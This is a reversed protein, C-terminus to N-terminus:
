EGIEGTEDEQRGEVVHDETADEAMIITEKPLNDDSMVVKTEEKVDIDDVGTTKFEPAKTPASPEMNESETPIVAGGHTAPEEVSVPEPDIGDETMKDVVKTEEGSKGEEVGSVESTIRQEFVTAIASVGWGAPIIPKVTPPRRQPGRARGKRMDGIKGGEVSKDVNEEAGGREETINTSAEPQISHAEEEKKQPPPPPPKGLKANLDKAFQARLGAFKSGGVLPKAPRPPPVPKVKLQQQQQEFQKALRHQPRAPLPPSKVGAVKAPISKTPVESQIDSASNSAVSAVSKVDPVPDTEISHRSSSSPGEVPEVIGGQSHVIDPPQDMAVKAEPKPQPKFKSPRPPIVPISSTLPTSPLGPEEPQFPTKKEQHALIPPIEDKPKEPRPSIAPIADDDKRKQPRAPISPLPQETTQQIPIDPPTSKEEKPSAPIAPHEHPSTSIEEVQPEAKDPRQTSEDADMPAPKQPRRPAVPPENVILEPEETLIESATPAAEVIRTSISPIKELQPEEEISYQGRVSKTSSKRTPRQPTPPMAEPISEEPTNKISSKRTPRPPIIPESAEGEIEPVSEAKEPISATSSKRSRRPSIIPDTSRPIEEPEREPVEPISSISSRSGKRTPRRPIAPGTPEVDDPGTASTESISKISSVRAPRPPIPPESSEIPPSTDPTSRISSRRPRSFEAVEGEAVQSESKIKTPLGLGQPIILPEDNVAAYSQLTPANPDEESVDTSAKRTPRKPIVPIVPIVPDESTTRPQRSPRPPIHPTEESPHSGLSERRAPHRPIEPVTMAEQLGPTIGDDIDITAPLLPVQKEIGDILYDANTTEEVPTQKAEISVRRTPRRPILPHDASSDPEHHSKEPRKSPRPPIMPITPPEDSYETEVPHPISGPPLYSLSSLDEQSTDMTRAIILVSEIHPDGPSESRGRASPRPPIQPIGGSPSTDMGSTIPRSRTPRSPIPPPLGIDEEMDFYGTERRHTPHGRLSYPLNGQDLLLSVSCNRDQGSRHM